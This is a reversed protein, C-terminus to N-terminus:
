KLIEGPPKAMQYLFILVILGLTSFIIGLFFSLPQYEIDIKHKGSPIKIAKFLYNARFIPVRIGDLEARWGPFWTDSIVVWGAESSSIIISLKQPQDLVIQTQYSVPKDLCKTPGTEFGEIIVKSLQDGIIITENKVM